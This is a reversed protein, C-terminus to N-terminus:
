YDFMHDGVQIAQTFTEEAYPKRIEILNLATYGRRRLFRIMGDNNPHVYNYVTEEGYDKAIEEARQFLATAAGQRRHAPSVFLSEVWVCPADVRCVMYGICEGGSVAACIPFGAALYEALEERAAVPNPAAEIGKYAKLAVRFAAVLGVVRDIDHAGIEIIEM